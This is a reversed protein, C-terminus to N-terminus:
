TEDKTEYRYLLYIFLYIFDQKNRKFLELCIKSNDFRQQLYIALLRQVRKSCLKRMSFYEHLITFVSGESAKLKEAIECFKLKRDAFVIEHIENINEPVVASNSHEAENTDLRCCKSDAYWKKDM